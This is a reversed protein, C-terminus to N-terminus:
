RLRTYFGSFMGVLEWFSIRPKIMHVVRLLMKRVIVVAALRLQQKQAVSMVIRQTSKVIHSAQHFKILIIMNLYKLLTAWLQM